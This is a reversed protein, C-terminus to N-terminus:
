LSKTFIMSGAIIGSLLIDASEGDIAFSYGEKQKIKSDVINSVISVFQDRSLLDTISSM